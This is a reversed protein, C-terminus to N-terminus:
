DRLLRVSFGCIKENSNRLLAEGGYYLNRSWSLAIDDETTSWWGCYYGRDYFGGDSDRCGVAFASFGSSNNKALDSSVTGSTSFTHWDTRAAMSKAIKNDHATDKTGDWNYGHLVMNKELVTWESDSPVHWGTPAINGPNVPNVVFWNYIAGYKRISDADTINNYYCYKETTGNGWTTKSTDLIVPAGDRYKTVRLNEAMWEQSGIKVTQYVNGDIDTVTGASAIMTIQIGATDSNTAIVRYNLYGTKTVRIVDNISALVKKSHPIASSGQTNVSIGNSVGGVANSKLLTENHGAQVKYLYIGKRLQPLLIYHGGADFNKCSTWLIKGTLDFATIQINSKEAIKVFIISSQIRVSM